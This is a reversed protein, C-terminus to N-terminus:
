YVCRTVTQQFDELTHLLDRFQRHQEDIENKDWTLRTWIVRMKGKGSGKELPGSKDLKVEFENLSAKCKGILDKLKQKQADPIDNYVTEIDDLASGLLTIVQKIHRYQAPAQVFRERLGKAIKGVAIVDGVSFGFSM